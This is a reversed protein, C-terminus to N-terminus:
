FPRGLYNLFFNLKEYWTYLNLRELGIIRENVDVWQIKTMKGILFAEFGGSDKFQFFPGVSDM